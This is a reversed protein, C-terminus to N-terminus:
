LPLLRGGIVGAMLLGFVLAGALGTVALLLWRPWAVVDLRRPDIAAGSPAPAPGSPRTSMADHVARPRPREVSTAPAGLQVAAAGDFEALLRARLDVTFYRTPQTQGNLMRRAQAGVADLEADLAMVAVDLPVALATGRAPLATVDEPRM